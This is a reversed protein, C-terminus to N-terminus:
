GVMRVGALEPQFSFREVVHYFDRMAARDAANPRLVGWIEKALRRDRPDARNAPIRDIWATSFRTHTALADPVFPFVSDSAISLALLSLAARYGGSALSQLENQTLSAKIVRYTNVFRLTRRPSGDLVPGLRKIFEAEEPSIRLRAVDAVAPSKVEVVQVRGSTKTPSPQAQPKVTASVPQDEERENPSAPPLSEEDGRLHDELISVTNPGALPRVWYPLQFIKELYDGPTAMGDEGAGAIQGSYETILAHRLWRVDVAVFVVFLPFALLLHIAQLVAIVKDPPCRDLDDVYLIIRQFAPATEAPEASTIKLKDKEETSLLDGVQEVLTAVRRAHTARAKEAEGALEAAPAMLASLEEFDRRMMAVLGLQRAYDGSAVRDRVFNIVRGRGTQNHYDRAAEAVQERATRFREEAEVSKARLAAVEQSAAEAAASQIVTEAAVVQEFTQNLLGLSAAAHNVGRVMWALGAAIPLLFSAVAAPVQWIGTDGFTLWGAGAAALGAALALLGKWSLARRVVAGRKFADRVPGQAAAVSAKFAEVDQQLQPLGLNRAAEDRRRQFDSDGSVAAWATRAIVLPSGHANARATELAAQQVQHDKTADRLERRRDVLAEAAELTLQRATSLRELVEDAGGQMANAGWQDLCTFIHDVLSAWLNTEVYHWANFRIQVVNKMFTVRGRDPGPQPAKKGSRKPLEPARRNKVAEVADHVLRMFFSKGSGWDGFVGVALPPHFNDATIMEAFANAERGAGSRDELGPAWPDDARSIAVGPVIPDAPPEPKPRPKPQSRVSGVKKRPGRPSPPPPSPPPPVIEGVAFQQSIAREAFIEDWVDPKEKVEMNRKILAVVADVAKPRNLGLQIMADNADWSIPPKTAAVIAFLIHRLGIFNDKGGTRSRLAHAEAFAAALGRSVQYRDINTGRSLPERDVSLPRSLSPSIIQYDSAEISEKLLTAALFSYIGIEGAPPEPRCQRLIDRITDSIRQGILAGMTPVHAEAM